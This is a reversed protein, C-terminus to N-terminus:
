QFLIVKAGFVVFHFHSSKKCVKIKVKVKLLLPLYDHSLISDVILLRLIRSM